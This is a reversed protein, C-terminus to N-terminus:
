WVECFCLAYRHAPDSMNALPRLQADLAQVLAGVPGQRVPVRGTRGLMSLLLKERFGLEKEMYRLSYDDGLGAKEAAAAIADELNGLKDILGIELADRGAWVRGRAIKDIEEPSTNRAQAVRAVFTRYGNEISLQLAERAAEGLARDPRIGGSLSTTGVGDVNLGLSALSRQFTPLMGLIGVSGTLTGPSAFVEDAAMSIYYGGSAAVGGMSAIVPKGAAKLREIERLIVESAYMSGGGSDVRVVVAKVKADERAKILQKSLSESGITGPPQNGTTIGGVAVIVAVQKETPQYRELRARASGVYSRFNVANYSHTKKNKGVLAILRDRVVEHSLLEDVLGAELALKATDGQVARLRAPVNEVYESVSDGPLKRAATVDQQWEEWLANLWILSSERDEDSM